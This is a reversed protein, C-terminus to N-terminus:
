GVVGHLAVNWTAVTDAASSRSGRVTLRQGSPIDAMVFPMAQLPGGCLEGADLNMILGTQGGGGAIVEETAAGVGIDWSFASATLTTDGSPPQASLSVAFHDETTSATVETWSGEAGSAGPTVNTGAPVTGIGYTIVRQGVRFPPYGNGGYLAVAVRMATTTRDGAVQAAIRTGAPIYLPFVWRKPGSNAAGGMNGCFGMLLNPILVEETAAGVLIDLCGRSATAALGYGSAIIEIMYSDFATSAILEVATGKTAAAAGTTCSAGINATGITGITQEFRRVGKQPVWLM